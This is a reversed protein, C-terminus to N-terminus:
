KRSEAAVMWVLRGGEPKILRAPYTHPDGDPALIAQLAPAKDAGTVLFLTENSRNLAEATLSIRLPPPKPADHVAVVLTGAPANLAPHHPFLSATHGDPGIGLLVIDFRGGASTLLADVQQAYVAVADDPEAFYTPVAFVQDAPIPVHDILTRRAAFMNSDPHDASVYREDGVLLSTQAWPIQSRFPESALLAYVGLPTSGGALVMTFSGHRAIAAQAAAAIREAAAQQLAAVDPYTKVEPQPSL